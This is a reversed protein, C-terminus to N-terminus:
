FRESRIQALRVMQMSWGNRGTFQLYLNTRRMFFRRNEEVFLRRLANLISGSTHQARGISDAPVSRAVRVTAKQLRRNLAFNWFFFFIPNFLQDFFVYTIFLVLLTAIIIMRKQWGDRHTHPARTICQYNRRAVLFRRGCAGHFFM